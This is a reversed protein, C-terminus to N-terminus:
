MISRTLITLEVYALGWTCKNCPEMMTCNKGSPRHSFGSCYVGQGQGRTGENAEARERESGRRVTREREGSELWIHNCHKISSWTKEASCSQTAKMWSPLIANRGGLCPILFPICTKKDCGWLIQGKRTRKRPRRQEKQYKKQTRRGKKVYGNEGQM